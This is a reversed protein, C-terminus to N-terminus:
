NFLSYKSTFQGNDKFFLSIFLFLFYSHMHLEIIVADGNRIDQNILISALKTKGVRTTGVVFTHGVRVYVPKDKEGVGHLYPSGGIPPDPRLPNLKSPHNLIKALLSHERNQCFARALQFCKSRQLYVENKIQKIQHLRQTHHPLWRFGKGLFLWKQSIPVQTTSLSYYPMALLRRHYRKIKYAQWGRLLSLFGLSISAYYGMEQTLLFLYPKTAALISLAACTISIYIETPERLLNEVPYDSM